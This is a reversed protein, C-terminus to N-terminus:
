WDIESADMESGGLPEDDPAVVMPPPPPPPAPGAGTRARLAWGRARAADMRKYYAVPKGKGTTEGKAESQGAAWDLTDALMDLFDAPCESMKRGRMNPGTWDRPSFTVKPNGYQGDLDRDSAIKPVTATTSAAPPAPRGARGQERLAKLIEKNTALIAQLLAIMMAGAELRSQETAM